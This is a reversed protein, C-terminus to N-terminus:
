VFLFDDPALNSLAVGKLTITDFADYTIVTDTGVQQAHSMVAAFDAFLGRDLQIVDGAGAGAAFDM